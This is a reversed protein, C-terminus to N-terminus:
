MARSPCCLPFNVYARDFRAGESGIEDQVTKMARLSGATQDDTMIVVLNPRPDKVEGEAGALSIVALMAALLVAAGISVVPRRRPEAPESDPPVPTIGM